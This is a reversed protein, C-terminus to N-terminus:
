INESEEVPTTAAEITQYRQTVRVTDGAAVNGQGSVIVEQGDNLGSLAVAKQEHTPGLTVSRVDVVPVGGTGVAGTTDSRRREVIYVNTGEEDREVATRPIVLADELTRTPIKMTGSMEPKIQRNSNPIEVEVPFTRSQPDITNGVFTVQGRRPSAGYTDFEVTVSQGRQVNNAYREPVNATIEVRGIDVMRAVQQGPSIQEGPEVMREEVTGSFPARIRTNALRERASALQAEAQNVSARTQNRESRVQEFELASIISDRYLPLQRQYSDAALELRSRATELQAKAQEVAAEEEGSELRAVVQGAEVFAGQEAISLVTGSAEASLTADNLATAEGNLELVDEFRTRELSLTEIPTRQEVTEEASSDDSSCGALSPLGALVLALAAVLAPRRTSTTM